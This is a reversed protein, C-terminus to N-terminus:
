QKIITFETRRNMQYEQESCSVGNTCANVPKSEGYGVAMIRYKSVGKGIIYAVAADARRQSLKQNYADNGRSDTHSGLEIWITPNQELIDVLKDLEKAADPRIDAKDFDYYINELRIAKGLEIKDLLFHQKLDKSGGEETQIAIKSPSRYATNNVSLEYKQTPMLNFSYNGKTDSITSIDQGGAQKLSVVANGIPLSTVRDAITGSLTYGSLPLGTFSYIDDKGQGGNRNSSLFQRGNNIAFAFDDAPSNIPYGLNVAQGAVAKFIDLGGMGAFGNSSFYLTGTQDVFPTREAGATNYAALAIPASWAGGNQRVCKYLDTAGKGGDMDSVFYLTNGDSSIFPDGVSYKFRNNYAFAQPTQWKGGQMAVSYIEVRATVEQEISAEESGNIASSAYFMTKGDATFSPSSVHQSGNGTPLYSTPAQGAVPQQYLALYGDGTWGYVQQDPKTTTDFKLFPRNGSEANKGTRDSAFVLTNGLWATGWDSQKSNLNAQNEVSFNGPHQMWTVASDCSALLVSLNNQNAGSRQADQLQWKAEAYKANNMLVRAYDIKAQVNATDAAVWVAYWTEAQRFDSMKAYSNALSEVAHLTTKKQYAKTYLEAAKAYNLLGYQKDADKIVYQASALTAMSGCFTALAIKKM